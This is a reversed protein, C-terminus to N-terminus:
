EEFMKKFMKSNQSNLPLMFSGIIMKSKSIKNTLSSLQELPLNSIYIFDVAKYKPFLIADKKRTKNAILYHNINQEDFYQFMSFNFTKEPTKGKSIFDDTKVFHLNAGDGLSWAIQIDKFHSSIGIFNKPFDQTIESTIKKKL